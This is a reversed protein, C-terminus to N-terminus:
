NFHSTSGVRDKIRKAVRFGTESMERGRDENGRERERWRREKKREREITWQGSHIEFIQWIWVRKRSLQSVSPLWIRKWGFKYLYLFQPEKPPQLSIPNWIFYDWVLDTGEPSSYQVHGKLNYLRHGDQRKNFLLFNLLQPPLQSAGYWM